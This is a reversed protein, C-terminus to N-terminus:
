PSPATSNNLFAMSCTLDKAKSSPYALISLMRSSTLWAKQIHYLSHADARASIIWMCHRTAVLGAFLKSCIIHLMGVHLRMPLVSEVSNSHRAITQKTWKMTARTLSSRALVRLPQRTNKPNHLFSLVHLLLQLSCLFPVDFM